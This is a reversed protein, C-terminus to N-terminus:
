KRSIRLRAENVTANAIGNGDQRAGIHQKGLIIRQYGSNMGIFVTTEGDTQIRAFIYHIDKKGDRM